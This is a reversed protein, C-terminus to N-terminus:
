AHPSLGAELPAKCLRCLTDDPFNAAQCVSCLVNDVKNSRDELCAYVILAVLGTPLLFLWGASRQRSKLHYFCATVYSILYLFVATNVHWSSGNADGNRWREEIMLAMLVVAVIAAVKRRQRYTKVLEAPIM